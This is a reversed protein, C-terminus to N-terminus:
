RINNELDAATSFIRDPCYLPPYRYEQGVPARKEMRNEYSEHIAALGFVVM